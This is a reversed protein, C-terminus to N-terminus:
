RVAARGSTVLTYTTPDSANNPTILHIAGTFSWGVLSREGLSAFVCREARSCMTQITGITVDDVPVFVWM